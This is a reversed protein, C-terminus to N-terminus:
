EGFQRPGGPHRGMDLRLLGKLRRPTPHTAAIAYPAPAVEVGDLLGLCSSSAAFMRARSTSLMSRGRSVGFAARARRVMEQHSEHGRAAGDKVQTSIM